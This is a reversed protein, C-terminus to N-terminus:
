KKRHRCNFVVKKLRTCFYANRENGTVSKAMYNTISSTRSTRSKGNLYSSRIITSGLVIGQREKKVEIMKTGVTLGLTGSTAIFVCICARYDYYLDHPILMAVFYTIAILLTIVLLQASENLAAHPIRSAFYVTPVLGLWLVINFTEMGFRLLTSSKKSTCQPYVYTGGSVMQVSFNARVVWLGVLVAEILVLLVNLSRFLAVIVKGNTMRVRKTGIYAFLGNKVILSSIIVSIGVPLLIMRLMCLGATPSFAYAAIFLYCLGTGCVMIFTHLFSTNKIIHSHQFILLFCASALSTFLGITAMAVIYAFPLLILGDSPIISSNRYFLPTDPDTFSFETADINTEGFYHMNYKYGDFSYIDYGIELDGNDNLVMPDNTIGSYGLDQFLTYNMKDQLKRSQLMNPANSSSENLLKHFGLLMMMVCDFVINGSFLGIFDNQNLDPYRSVMTGLVRDFLPQNIPNGVGFTFGISGSIAEYTSLTVNEDFQPSNNAIYVRNESMMGNSNLYLFLTALFFNDGITITYRTDTQNLMSATYQLEDKTLDSMLGFKALITIGGQQLADLVDKAYMRGTESDKQYIISARTVKWFQLLLLYHRGVGLAPMPRWFYPYRSKDSFRMSGTGAACYPIQLYSLAAAVGTATSSYETGIVGIVSNGYYELDAAPDYSGCDSFRKATVTIGPLIDTSNNVMEIALVSGTFVLNPVACYNNIFGLTISNAM